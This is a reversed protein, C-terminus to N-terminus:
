KSHWKSTVNQDWDEEGEEESDSEDM